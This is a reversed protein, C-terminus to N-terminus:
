NTIPVELRGRQARMKSSPMPGDMTSCEPLISTCRTVCSSDRRPTRVAGIAGGVRRTADQSAATTMGDIIQTTVTLSSSRNRFLPPSLARNKM